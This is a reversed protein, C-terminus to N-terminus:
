WKREFWVLWADGRGTNIYQLSGDRLLLRKVSENQKTIEKDYVGVFKWQDLGDIKMDPDWGEFFSKFNEVSIWRKKARSIADQGVYVDFDPNNLLGMIVGPSHSRTFGSSYKKAIDASLGRYVGCGAYEELVGSWGRYVLGGNLDDFGSFNPSTSCDEASSAGIIKGKYMKLFVDDALLFHRKMINCVHEGWIIKVPFARGYVNVLENGFDTMIPYWNEDFRVTAGEFEFLKSKDKKLDIRYSIMEKKIKLRQELTFKKLWLLCLAADGSFVDLSQKTGPLEWFFAEKEDSVFLGWYRGVCVGDKIGSIDLDADWEKYFNIIREKGLVDILYDEADKAFKSFYNRNGQSHFHEIVGVSQSWAIHVRSKEFIARTLDAYIWRRIYDSSIVSGLREVFEVNKNGGEDLFPYEVLSVWVITWQDDLVFFVDDAKELKSSVADRIPIGLGWVEEWLRSEFLSLVQEIYLNNKLFETGSLSQVSWRGDEDLQEMKDWLNFIQTARQLINSARGNFYKWVYHGVVHDQEFFNPLSNKLNFSIVIYKNAILSFSFEPFEKELQEVVGSSLTWDKARFDRSVVHAIRDHFVLLESSLRWYNYDSSYQMSADHFPASFVWKNSNEPDLFFFGWGSNSSDNLEDMALAEEYAIMIDDFCKAKEINNMLLPDEDSFYKNVLDCNFEQEEWLSFFAEIIEKRTSSVSLNLSEIDKWLLDFAIKKLSEQMSDSDISPQNHFISILSFCINRRSWCDNVIDVKNLGEM